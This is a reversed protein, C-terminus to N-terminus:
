LTAPDICCFGIANPGASVLVWHRQTKNSGNSNPGARLLVWSQLKKKMRYFPFLYIHIKKYQVFTPHHNKKKM